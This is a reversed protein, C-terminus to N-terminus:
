AEDDDQQAEEGRGEQREDGEGERDDQQAKQDPAQEPANGLREALDRLRRGRIPM